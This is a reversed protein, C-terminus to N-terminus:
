RHGHHPPGRSDLDHRQNVTFPRVLTHCGTMNLSTEQLNASDFKPSGTRSAAQFWVIRSGHQQVGICVHLASLPSPLLLLVIFGQLASFFRGSFILTASGDKRTLLDQLQKPTVCAYIFLAYVVIFPSVTLGLRFLGISTTSGWHFSLEAAYVSSFGSRANGRSRRRHADATLEDRQGYLLSVTNCVM